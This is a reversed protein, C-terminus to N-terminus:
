WARIAARVPRVSFAASSANTATDSLSARLILSRRRESSSEPKAPFAARNQSQNAVQAAQAKNHQEAEFAHVAGRVLTHSDDHPDLMPQATQDIYDYAASDSVKNPLFGVQAVRAQAPDTGLLLALGRALNAYRESGCSRSFPIVVRWRRAVKGAKDQLHSGTTYALYACGYPDYMKQLSDATRDDHDHDVVAAWFEAAQAAEKTKAGATFPTFAAAKSKPGVTPSRAAEVLDALTFARAPVTANVSEYVPFVCATNIAPDISFPKGGNIALLSSM